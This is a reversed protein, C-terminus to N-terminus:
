PEDGDFENRGKTLLPVASVLGFNGPARGSAGAGTRKFWLELTFSSAGLGAAPGM